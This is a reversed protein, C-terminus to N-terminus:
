FVTCAIIRIQDSALWIVERQKGTCYWDVGGWPLKHVDGEFVIIYKKTVLSHPINIEEGTDDAFNMLTVLFPLDLRCYLHYGSDNRYQKYHIVICKLWMHKMGFM